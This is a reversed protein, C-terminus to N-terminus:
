QLPQSLQKTTEALVQQLKPISDAGLYPDKGEKIAKITEEIPVVRFMQRSNM